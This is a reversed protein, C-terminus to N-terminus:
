MICYYLCVSDIFVCHIVISVNTGKRGDLGVRRPVVRCYAKSHICKHMTSVCKLAEPTIWHANAQARIQLISACTKLKLYALLSSAVLESRSVSAPYSVSKTGNYKVKPHPEFGKLWGNLLLESRCFLERHFEHVIAATRLWHILIVQFSRLQPGFNLSKRLLRSTKAAGRHRHSTCLLAM